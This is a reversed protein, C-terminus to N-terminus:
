SNARNSLVLGYRLGRVSVELDSAGIALLFEELLIAGGLIVDARGSDMGGIGLREQSTMPTFQLILNQIEGLSLRAGNVRDPDFAKLGLSSSALYTATGAVGLWKKGAFGSLFNRANHFEEKLKERLLLIESERVPNSKLFRETLRVCGLDFSRRILEGDKGMSIVETSGGGIDIVAYSQHDGRDSLAGAFSVRAEEDGSIVRISHGLIKEMQDFFDRSNKADRSGSTAAANVTVNTFRRLVESFKTFGAKGRDMAEPSFVKTRDVGQGLRVVCTEDHVVRQIQNREDVDAILLILTNTGIDIGARLM